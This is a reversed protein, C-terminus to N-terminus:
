KIAESKALLETKARSGASSGFFYATVQEAKASLYGILTGALASEAHMDTFLIGYTMAIFAGLIIYSLIRPTWDKTSVERDRASDRDGAEIKALDIDLEKLRITLNTEAVRLAAIQEGTLNGTTLVDKVSKVTPADMGLAKGVAEVALGALPGGLLTAVNPALSGITSLVTKWEM